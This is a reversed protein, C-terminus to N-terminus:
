EINQVQERIDEIITKIEVVLRTIELKNAKSGITNTERNMEQVLFDMKKGIQGSENLFLYFQEIHSKLRTLEEQISTKDSYIVIEQALRTEDVPMDGNLLENIRERLKVVYDQVLGDSYTCIKQINEEIQSLRVKIDEAITEGEKQRMRALNEIAIDLAKSLEQWLLEEDTNNEIALVDPLKILEMVNIQSNIDNNEAIKKIERIYESALGQNIKINKGKESNNSFNVYIDIKGRRIENLVQKKVNEELFSLSKPMKISVDSYKHNVSRIEVTYSRDENDYEGRGYGTMSKIM